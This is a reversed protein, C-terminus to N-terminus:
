GINVRLAGDGIAESFAPAFRDRMWDMSMMGSDSKITFNLIRPTAAAAASTPPPPLGDSPLGVNGGPTGVPLGTNPNGPFTPVAGGGAGGGQFQQSRIKGVQAMGFAIAAAAAVAGLVPGVIPIGSLSNFASMASQFTSIVTSAIAAKKGIEFQKKSGSQMLNSAQSMVGGLVDLQGRYGSAWMEQNRKSAAADQAERGTLGRTNAEAMKLDHQDKLQGLMKYYSEHSILDNMLADDLLLQKNLYAETLLEQETMLSQSLGEMSEAMRILDKAHRENAKAEYTDALAQRQENYQEETKLGEIKLDFGQKLIQSDKVFKEALLQQESTTSEHIAALQKALEEKLKATEERAKQSRSSAGGGGGGAPKEEPAPAEGSWVKAISAAAKANMAEIDEAALRIIERAQGFEGQAAAVAAAAGAGIWTGTQQFANAVGIGVTTLGQLTVGLVKAAAELLGSNKATDVMADTIGILAPLMQEAMTLAMGAAATKLRDVNDNFADAKRATDASIIAGFRLAEESGARLAEKGGRMVNIMDAGSRGFVDMAISVRDAQNPIKEMADAIAEVAEDPKMQALKGADLGLDKIADKALGTGQAADSLNRAMMQLSTNLAEAPVNALKATYTLGSLAETTMGLKDATQKTADATDIATKVMVAATTVAVAAAAGVAAGVKGWNTSIKDGEKEATQGFKEIVATGDDKVRLVIQM